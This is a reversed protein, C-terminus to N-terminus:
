TGQPQGPSTEPYVLVSQPGPPDSAAPAPPPSQPAAAGPPTAAPPQLQDLLRQAGADNAHDKLYTQLEQIARDKDGNLALARALLPRVASAQAQGIELARDAEKTAEPYQKQQLCAQAMMAHPRWGAPDAEIATNLLPVADEPKSEKLSLQSLQLLAGVHKPYLELTKRWYARAQDPEDVRSEYLGYLYNVEPHSPALQYLEVLSAHATALHNEQIGQLVSMALKQAKPSLVPMGAPRQASSKAEGNRRLQFQAFAVGGNVNVTQVEEVYGAASVKVSYLGPRLNPFEIRGAETVGQQFMGGEMRSIIVLAPITNAGGTEDRVWVQLTASVEPDNQMSGVGRQAWGPLASCWVLSLFLSGRLVRRDLCEM